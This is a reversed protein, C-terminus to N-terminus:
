IKMGVVKTDIEVSVGPGGGPYLVTKFSRRQSRHSLEGDDDPQNDSESRTHAALSATASLEQRRRPKPEPSPRTTPHDVFLFHLFTSRHRGLGVSPIPSQIPGKTCCHVNGDPIPLFFLPPNNPEVVKWFLFRPVWRGALIPEFQAHHEMFLLWLYCRMPVTWSFRKSM